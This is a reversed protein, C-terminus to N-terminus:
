PMQIMPNNAASPRFAYGFLDIDRRYSRAVIERTEADYYTTFHAHRGANVPKLEATNGIRSAIYKFDKELTEFRAVYDVMITRDAIFHHQPVFHIWSWVNEETVWERVFERFSRFQSLHRDAWARDIDNAGGDRLFFYASVLRDWPNRVISFKFMRRYKFPNARLYDYYRIHSACPLSLADAIATGGTKPIHIFIYGARDPYAAYKGRGRADAIRMRWTMPLFSKIASMAM